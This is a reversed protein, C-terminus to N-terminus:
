IDKNIYTNNKIDYLCYNGDKKCLLFGIASNEPVNITFNVPPLSNQQFLVEIKLIGKNLQPIICYNKGFRPIMKTDKKVYFPLNKDGQIYVFSSYNAFLQICNCFIILNILLFIKYIIKM